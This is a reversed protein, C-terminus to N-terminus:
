DPLQDIYFRVYTLRLIVSTFNKMANLGGQCSIGDAELCQPM